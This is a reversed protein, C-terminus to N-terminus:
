AGITRLCAFGPSAQLWRPHSTAVTEPQRDKGTTILSFCGCSRRELGAADLITIRGRAYAILGAKQLKLAEATVSERRV